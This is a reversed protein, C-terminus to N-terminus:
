PRGELPMLFVDEAPIFSNFLVTCAGRKSVRCADRPCLRCWLYDTGEWFRTVATMTVFGRTHHCVIYEIPKPQFSATSYEPSTTSTGM